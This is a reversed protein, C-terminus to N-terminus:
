SVEGTGLHILAYGMADAQKKLNKLLREQYRQNYQEQGQDVYDMGYKIMRYVLSALKHATATIAKAGGLRYHMRRYFAGLATKSDHLSQAGLRLAKATRSQVKRTKRKRVKGGTIVNHPCLGLWSIFQKETAFAGLDIGCESIITLATMSSIGDITTLDVGTAHYLETQLDFHPENKRRKSTKPKPSPKDKDAKDEFSCICEEIRRDCQRIKEHYLDFMELAAGLLFLQEERWDGCLAKVIEEESKKVSKDRMKALTAPDREGSVITRIICLGSVGSIDSLVKHLQLNMQELAKQMLLIQRSAMEVLDARYRWYARLPVMDAEPLFCSRLLGFSHLKQIWQCDDVDTERGPVSNVHRADVLNVEFGHEELVQFVPIWYVGTSEMTITEVKCEKLWRAMEHLDPTYCGFHRVPEDSVEPSVAVYHTESGIDIGAAHPNVMQLDKSIAKKAKCKSQRKNASVM